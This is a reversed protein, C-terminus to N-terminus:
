APVESGLAAIATAADTVESAVDAFFGGFAGEHTVVDGQLHVAVLATRQPDLQMHKM